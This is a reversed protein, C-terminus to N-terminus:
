AYRGIRKLDTSITATYSYSYGKGPIYRNLDQRTNDITEFIQWEVFNLYNKLQSFEPPLCKSINVDNEVHLQRIARYRYESTFDTNFKVKLTYSM